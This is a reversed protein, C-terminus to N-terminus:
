NWGGNFYISARNKEPTHLMGLLNKIVLATSIIVALYGAVLGAVSEARWAFVCATIHFLVLCFLLPTKMVFIKRHHFDAVHQKAIQRLTLWSPLM